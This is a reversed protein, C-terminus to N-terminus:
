PPPVREMALGGIGVFCVLCSLVWYVVSSGSMERYYFIGWLGSVVISAQVLSYGIGQGLTAVVYLACFNGMSWLMGSLFGPVMMARVEFSPLPEGQTKRWGCFALLLMCMAVMAGIGFSIIYHVGQISSFHSPVLNAGGWVGNFIAALVGLQYSVKPVVINPVDEGGTPGGREWGLLAECDASEGTAAPRGKLLMRDQPERGQNELYFAMTM